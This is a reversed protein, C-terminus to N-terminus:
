GVDKRRALLDAAVQELTMRRQMAMERLRRFAADEGVEHARAIAEVAQHVLGRLQLRARMEAIEERTARREEFVHLALVLAPYVSAQAIPKAIISGAGQEIAWAIRGPAESGLLAVVPVPADAGAWPLLGGWGQDADVLVIDCQEQPGLPAWRRDVDLGLRRLQRALREIGEDARHLIVARLGVFNPTSM